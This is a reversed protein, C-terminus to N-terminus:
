SLLGSESKNDEPSFVKYYNYIALCTQGMDHMGDVIIGVSKAWNTADEIQRDLTKDKAESLWLGASVLDDCADMDVVVGTRKKIEQAEAGAQWEYQYINAKKSLVGGSWAVCQMYCDAKVSNILDAKGYVGCRYPAVYHKASYLYSEILPYDKEEANYDVCFYIACSTPIGMATALNKAIRGDQEGASEGKSARTATTEWLLVIGLGSEQIADAETKTLAKWATEGSNQVLYRGVFSIGCSALAAANERTLKQATDVGKYSM